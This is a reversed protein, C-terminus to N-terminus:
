PALNLLGAMAANVWPAALQPALGLALSLGISGALVARAALTPPALSVGADGSAPLAAAAAPDAEDASWQPEAAPASNMAWRVVAATVLASGVPVWLGATGLGLRAITAWRGPFGASLPLGALGALGVMAGIRALGPSQSVQPRRIIWALSAAYLALSVSRAGALSLAINFGDSSNAGIAMLGVGFDAILAYAAIKRVSRQALASVSGAAIM